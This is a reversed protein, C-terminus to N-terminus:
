RAIRRREDYSEENDATMDGKTRIDLRPVEATTLPRGSRVEAEGPVEARELSALVAYLSVCRHTDGNGCRRTEGDKAAGVWLRGMKGGHVVRPNINLGKEVTSRASEEGAKGPGRTVSMSYVM